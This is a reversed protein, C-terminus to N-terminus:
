EGADEYLRKYEERSILVMRPKAGDAAGIIGRATMDDVIRGARAYGIRMRRQLMSISVQGLEVAIGIAQSLLPDCEDDKKDEKEADSQEASEMQELIDPNYVAEHQSKIFETVATVEEDTVNAGQM